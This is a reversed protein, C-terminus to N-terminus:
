PTLVEGTAAEVEWRANGGEGRVVWREPRTPVLLMAVPGSAVGAGSAAIASLVAQSDIWGTGLANDGIIYGPPSSAAQEESSTSLPLVRVVLERTTGPATYHFEWVGQDPLALGAPSINEGAVWRLRADTSWVRATSRAEIFADRASVGLAGPALRGAAAGCGLLLGAMAALVALRISNM